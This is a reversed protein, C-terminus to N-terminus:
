QEERRWEERLLGYVVLDRREGPYAQAGRMTGELTFGLREAVARSRTNMVSTDIIARAIDHDKFLTDLLASVARTVLGRGEYDEGLWYGITASKEYLNIRATTAGAVQGDQRIVCPIMEGKVWQTLLYTGLSAVSIMSQDSHAWPEWERLHELNANILKHVGYDTSRDRLVIEAGDGLDINFM